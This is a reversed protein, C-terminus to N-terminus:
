GFLADGAKLAHGDLLKFLELAAEDEFMAPSAAAAGVGKPGTACFFAEEALQEAPESRPPELEIVRDPSKAGAARAWIARMGFIDLALARLAATDFVFTAAETFPPDPHEYRELPSTM